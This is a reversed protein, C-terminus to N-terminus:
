LFTHCLLVSFVHNRIRNDQVTPGNAKRKTINSANKANEMARASKRLVLAIQRLTCQRCLM